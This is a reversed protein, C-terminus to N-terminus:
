LGPINYKKELFISRLKVVEGDKVVQRVFENMVKTPIELPLQIIEETSLLLTFNHCFPCKANM